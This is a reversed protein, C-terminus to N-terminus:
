FVFLFIWIALTFIGTLLMKIIKEIAKERAKARNITIMSVKKQVQEFYIVGVMPIIFFNYLIYIFSIWKILFIIKSLM